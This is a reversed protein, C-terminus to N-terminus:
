PDHRSTEIHWNPVHPHITMTTDNRSRKDTQSPCIAIVRRLRSPHHRNMVTQWNELTKSFICLPTVTHPSFTPPDHDPLDHHGTVVMVSRPRQFNIIGSSRTKTSVLLCTPAPFSIPIYFVCDVACIQSRVDSLNQRRRAITFVLLKSTSTPAPTPAEISIIRAIQFLSYLLPQDLRRCLRNKPKNRM